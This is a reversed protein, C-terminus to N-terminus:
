AAPPGQDERVVQLPVIAPLRVLSPKSGRQRKRPEAPEDVDRLSHLAADVRHVKRKWAEAEAAQKDEVRGAL